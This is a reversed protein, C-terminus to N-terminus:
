LRVVRALRGAQGRYHNRTDVILSARRLILGYDVNAHDTLIVVADCRALQGPTLPTSRVTVGNLPATAVYPDHYAVRAGHDCLDQAVDFAPSDRTDNVDKKYALGILLIRSGNLAKKRTNLARAIKDVFRHHRHNAFM